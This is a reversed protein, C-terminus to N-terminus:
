RKVLQNGRIVFTVEHGPVNRSTGEERCWRRITTGERWALLKVFSRGSPTKRKVEALAEFDFFGVRNVQCNFWRRIGEHIVEYYAVAVVRGLEPHEFPGTFGKVRKLWDFEMMPDPARKEEALAIDIWSDDAATAASTTAGGHTGPEADVAVMAVPPAFPAGELPQDPALISPLVGTAGEAAPAATFMADLEEKTINV